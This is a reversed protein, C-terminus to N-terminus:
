RLGEWGLRLLWGAAVTLVTSLALLGLVILATLSVKALTRRIARGRWGKYRIRVMRVPETM